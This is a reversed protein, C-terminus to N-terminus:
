EERYQTPTKEFHDKFCRSFYDPASFGVQFAIESVTFDTNKLLEAAKKLRVIRLYENPSYNTIGKIKKYFITRGMNVAQAFDDITFEPDSLHEEVIVTIKEIFQSDKNTTSITNEIKGPEYAFKYQLKERQEILKVIRLMLYELSFPKTIYADAGADIGEKQHEISSHATLLIIPIHSTQFESKLKRTVEFGDMEPMMVDCVILNPQEDIAAKCGALGNSATHVTFFGKLHDELFSRIEEDDEILLLKYGQRIAPAKGTSKKSETSLHIPQAQLPEEQIPSYEPAMLDKATYVAPDTPISVTFCAGQWPSDSYKIDGKHLHIFESALHLGIGIGSATYNIQKFRVFLLHQKEEPIGIGSDSVKLLLLHEQQDFHIDVSIYGGNPTHKFANSLLNFLVKEMKSKDLLMDISEENSSFTYTIQKLQATESFLDYIGYFFGVAETSELNLNLQSNQMKRFELLQDILRMLKGSSKNLTELYKKLAGPLPQLKNISEISGQIITLPTRFEHSINTFFRLRYETLQKEIEIQNNLKNMKIFLRFGFFSAIALVIIYLLIANTSKWFPPRVIIELTTEMDNEIPQQNLVKVKFFYKGAPINKYTAVNYQTAPNWEKDYNELIYTYRNSYAGKFNLSSFEINFSNQNHALEIRRTNHINETLPSDPSNPTMPIGNISLGTLKVPIHLSDSNFLAPNIIYMGNHSGFLLEGNERRFASSECFLDSEWTDSFSYNEFIEDTPNFKSLGYETSIWLCQNDDELISQVINNTLGEESTYHKFGTVKGSEDKIVRNVGGGSTGIWIRGESDEFLARIINSNLSHHNSKDFHFSQFATEDKLISDPHFTVVGNEGGAWIIGSRDQILCRIQKQRLVFAPFSTVKFETGQLEYLFLGSGFTGIWMRGKSDRLVAYINSAGTEPDESIVHHYAEELTKKGKPIIVLGNGKTGIWINHLTDSAICYPVGRKLVHMQKQKLTEDFRYIGGSKTGVWLDQLEPDEYISRIIKDPENLKPSNPLLVQKNYKTLSIKTIGANETGIWIDGTSDESVSLLYNTKLGSNAATLHTVTENKDLIFLGNGYTTIWTIGRSDCFIGFRELDIISLISRPIVNLCEFVQQEKRYRWLNGTRNYVWCNGKNDIHIHSGALEKNDFFGKASSIKGSVANFIHTSEKGAILITNENLAFTHNIRVNVGEILQFDKKKKHYAWVVSDNTFFFIQDKLEVSSHYSYAKNGTKNNCFVPTGEVIQILGKDTGMWTQGSSDKYVFTILNTGINDIDYLKSTIIGDVYEVHCAGHDTGWLWVDGDPMTKIKRYNRAEQTGTYDVFSETNLDYCNVFRSSSHIWIHGSKDEKTQRINNEALSLQSFEPHMTIFRYGDYRNLGNITSIWMFGHSDQMMCRVTNHSLGEKHTINEYKLGEIARLPLISLYLILFFITNKM